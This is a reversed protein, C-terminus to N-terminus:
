TLIDNLRNAQMALKIERAIRRGMSMPENYILYSYPSGNIYLNTGAVIRASFEFFYVEGNEDCIGELCFPGIIGPSVLKKSAEVFREAAELVDILLSERLVIPINGVVRYTPILKLELQESAPLRAIADVNSEYRRDVGLLEVENTLPSYFFHPYITVGVVYEQISISDVDEEKLVGKNLLERVKAQFDEYSLAVFYGRGGAAGPLKAIVARDIERPSKFLRPTKLGAEAMLKQKLDRDAEWRFIWRNGFVPVEFKREFDELKQESILTGHPIFVCNHRKLIGQVKNDLLEDFSGVEVVDDIFKFRSYLKLRDKLSIVLTKFGEDKAGKLIQLASHSGLTAITEVLM